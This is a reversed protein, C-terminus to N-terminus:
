WGKPFQKPESINYRASIEDIRAIVGRCLMALVRGAREYGDPDPNAIHITGNDPKPEPLKALCSEACKRLTAFCRYIDEDSPGKKREPMFEDLAENVIRKIQKETISNRM